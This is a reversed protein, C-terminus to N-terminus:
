KALDILSLFFGVVQDLHVVLLTTVSGLLAGYTAVKYDHRRLDKAEQATREDDLKQRSADQAQQKAAQDAAEKLELRKERGLDTISVFRPVSQDYRLLGERDMNTLVADLDNIDCGLSLHLDRLAQREPVLSDLIELRFKDYM